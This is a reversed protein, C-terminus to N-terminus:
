NVQFNISQGEYLFCFLFVSLPSLSSISLCHFARETAAHTRAAREGVINNGAGSKDDGGGAQYARERRRKSPQNRDEIISRRM